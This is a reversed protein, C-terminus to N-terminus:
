CMFMVAPLLICYSGAEPCPLTMFSFAESHPHCCFPEKTGMVSDCSFYCTNYFHKFLGMYAIFRLAYFVLMHYFLILCYLIIITWGYVTLINNNSGLSYILLSNINANSMLMCSVSAFNPVQLAHIRMDRM